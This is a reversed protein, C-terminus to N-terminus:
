RDAPRAALSSPAGLMMGGLIFILFLQNVFRAEPYCCFAQPVGGLAPWAPALLSGLVGSKTELSPLRSRRYRCALPCTCAPVLEPRYPPAVVEWQLRGLISTAVLRLGLDLTRTAM